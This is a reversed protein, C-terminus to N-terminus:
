IHRKFHNIIVKEIGETVKLRQPSITKFSNKSNNETVTSGHEYTVQDFKDTQREVDM